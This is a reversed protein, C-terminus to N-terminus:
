RSNPSGATGSLALVSILAWLLDMMRKVKLAKEFPMEINIIDGSLVVRSSGSRTISVRGGSRISVPTHSTEQNNDEFDIAWRPNPHKRNKPMWRFKLKITAV